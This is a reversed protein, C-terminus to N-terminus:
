ERQANPVYVNVLFFNEYECTIVRGEQDHKEIGLGFTVNTPASKSFVATGSYGKKIASNWYKFYGPFKFDAQSQQMKTEQVCFIDANSSKFFDFFGKNVCARLGNVNWSILKM